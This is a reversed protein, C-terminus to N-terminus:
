KVAVFVKDAFMGPKVVLVGADAGDSPVSLATNGTTSAGTYLTSMSDFNPEPAVALVSLGDITNGSPTVYNVSVMAPMGGDADDGIYTATYNVVIWENGEGAPRNGFNAEAVAEDAAFDVSNIVVEWDKSAVTTGLPFPNERTGDAADQQEAPAESASNSTDEGKPPTATSPSSCGALALTGILALALLSTSRKLM